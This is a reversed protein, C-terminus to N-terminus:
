MSAPTFGRLVLRVSGNGATHPSARLECALLRWPPRALELNRVAEFVGSLPVDSLVVEVEKIRWGADEQVVRERVDDIRVDPLAMALTERVSVPVASVAQLQSRAAEDRALGEALGRLVGIDHIRTRLVDRSSKLASVTRSTFVGAVLWAVACTVALSQIFLGKRM